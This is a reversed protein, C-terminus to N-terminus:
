YISTRYEKPSMNLQSKFAYYINKETQFGTLEAIEAITKKSQALLTKARRMRINTLYQKPSYGTQEHFKSTLFSKSIYLYECLDDIDIQKSYNSDMFAIAKAVVSHYEAPTSQKLIDMLIKYINESIFYYDFVQAQYTNYLSLITEIFLTASYNEFFGGCNNFFSRYIAEVDPGSIHMFYMEWHDDDARIVSKEALSVFILSGEKLDFTKDGYELTAHGSKTYAILYLTGASRKCFYGKENYEYGVRRAHYLFGLAKLKNPDFARWSSDNSTIRSENKFIKEM